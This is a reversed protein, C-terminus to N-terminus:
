GLKRLFASARELDAASPDEDIEREIETLLDIVEYSTADDFQVAPRGYFAEVLEISALTAEYIAPDPRRDFVDDFIDKGTEELHRSQKFYRVLFYLIERRDSPGFKVLNSRLDDMHKL